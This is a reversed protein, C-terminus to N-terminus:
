ATYKFDDDQQSTWRMASSVLKDELIGQYIEGKMNGEIVHLAGTYSASFCGWIM